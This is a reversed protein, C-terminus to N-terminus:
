AEFPKLKQLTTERYNGGIPIEKQNIELTNNSYSKIHVLSAIYSRHCRVFQNPPLVGELYSLRQYSILPKGETLYIRVYNSLGEIYLIQSLYVQVMRKDSKIYIYDESNESKVSPSVPEKENRSVKNVAKLFREFSIPKLLYDTVNHEFGELAYERYATTLIIAPSEKMTNLFDIGTLHPMEIDLFIIDVVNVQLLNTAEIANKYTGVLELFGLQSVYRKLIGQAVPEDDVILCKLRSNEM